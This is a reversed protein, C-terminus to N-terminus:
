TLLAFLILSSNKLSCRGLIKPILGPMAVIGRKPTSMGDDLSLMQSQVLNEPISVFSLILNLCFNLGGTHM